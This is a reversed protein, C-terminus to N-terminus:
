RCVHTTKNRGKWGTHRRNIQRAKIYQSPTEPCPQIPIILIFMGTKNRIRPRLYEAKVMPYLIPKKYIGKILKLFDGTGLKHSNKHINYFYKISTWSHINFKTLHKKQM